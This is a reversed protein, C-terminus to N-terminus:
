NPKVCLGAIGDALGSQLANGCIEGAGPCTNDFPTGGAASYLMRDQMGNGQACLRRCVRNASKAAYRDCQYGDQCEDWYTCATAAATPSTSTDLCVPGKWKDGSATPRGAADVTTDVFVCHQPPPNVSGFRADPPCTALGVKCAIHCVGKDELAARICGGPTTVGTNDVPADCQGASPPCDLNRDPFCISAAGEKTCAYGPHRCTTPTFCKAMCYSKPEGPPRFCSGTGCDADSTCEQSCYGGPTPVYKANNLLTSVWCVQTAGIKGETCDADKVCPAGICGAGQCLKPLTGGDPGTVIADVQGGDTGSPGLDMDAGIDSGGCGAVVLLISRMLLALSRKM